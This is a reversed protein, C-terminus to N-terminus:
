VGERQVCGLAELRTRTAALAAEEGEPRLGKGKGASPALLPDCGPLAQVAAAHACLAEVAQAWLGHNVALNAQPLRPPVSACPLYPPQVVPPKGFAAAAGCLYIEAAHLRL